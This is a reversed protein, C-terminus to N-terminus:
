ARRGGPLCAPHANALFSNSKRRLRFSNKKATAPPQTSKRSIKYHRSNKPEKQEGFLVYVRDKFM